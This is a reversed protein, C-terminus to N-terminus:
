RWSSKRRTMLAMLILIPTLRFVSSVWVKQAATNNITIQWGGQTVLQGSSNTTQYFLEEGDRLGDNDTDAAAPNSGLQSELKDSLGDNDTDSQLASYADGSARQDMEYRDSLGDGDSDWSADNPDLGGATTALLGDGDADKIAPFRADWALGVGGSARSSRQTFGSFTAPFVDFVMADLASTTSGVIRESTCKPFLGFFSWCDASLAKFSMGLALNTKQNIGAKFSQAPSSVNDRARVTQLTLSSGAYVTTEALQWHGPTIVDVDTGPLPPPTGTSNLNYRFDNREMNDFSYFNPYSLLADDDPYKAKLTTTIPMTVTFQQGDVIGGDPNAFTFKPAGTVMLDNLTLDILVENNYVLGVITKVASTTLTFCAGNLEPVTRLNDVGLECIATLLLDVFALVGVIITGLVTYSIMLLLLLLLTTAVSELLGQKFAANHIGVNNSVMSYAFLGWTVAVSLVTGVISARFSCEIVRASTSWIKFSSGAM